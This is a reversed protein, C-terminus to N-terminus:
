LGVMLRALRDQLQRVEGHGDLFRFFVANALPAMNDAIVLKKCLGVLVLILGERM